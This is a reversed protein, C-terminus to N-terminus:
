DEKSSTFVFEGSRFRGPKETSDKGGYVRRDVAFVPVAPEKREAHAVLWDIIRQGLPKKLPFLESVLIAIFILCFGIGLRATLLEGYLMVSFLVGFVAELSLFLSVQAPPVHTLAVNQFVLALCSGFVVLYALDMLFAPELLVEIPPWVGLSTGFILGCVGGALFQYVTLVLIDRGKSWRAVFVIHVGFVLSGVITILDGFEMSLSGQLSVFGMGVICILAAILNYISPRKRGVLWCILPVFVVYTATLFANKGPASFMLGTSQLWFAAFMMVGLISGYVIHSRNFAAKIRKFFVLSLILGTVLFRLGLLQAPPLVDLANKMVVFALGWIIAAAILMLKYAGAPVTEIHRGFM